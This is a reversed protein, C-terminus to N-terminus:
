YLYQGVDVRIGSYPAPVAPLAGHVPRSKREEENPDVNKAYAAYVLEDAVEVPLSSVPFHAKVCLSNQCNACGSVHWRSFVPEVGFLVWPESEAEKPRGWLSIVFSGAISSRNVGSIRLITTKSPTIPHVDQQTLVQSSTNWPRVEHPKIIADYTYGLNRINALTQLLASDTLQTRLCRPIPADFAAFSFRICGHSHSVKTTYPKGNRDKFPDIPSDATLWAGAYVGPTPGQEDVSNTGPYFDIIDLSGTSHHRHQWSWFVLDIFCHHFYFIPDFAATDNEGMDGNAGQIKPKGATRDPLDYGGVALHIANHPKELPVVLDKPAEQDSKPRGFNDDNWKAASTTNSFVTYNPALLSRLYQERTGPLLWSFLRTQAAIGSQMSSTSGLKYNSIWSGPVIWTKGDQAGGPPPNVHVGKDGPELWSRVNDELLQTIEAEPMENITANHKETGDKESPGVLGSYPYRVTQYGSPKSYDLRYVQGPKGHVPVDRALNDFFGQQMTYSFLPNPVDVGKVKRTKDTFISPICKGDDDEELENWYPLAVDSCGPVNQLAEELRLLYARHWTPFLVNGHQCFGGWYDKNAYGAGRFPQGHLGAINYFSDPHNHPLKQIAAFALLLKEEEAESLHRIDKRIHTM